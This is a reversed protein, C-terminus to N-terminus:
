YFLQGKMVTVARGGIFVRGEALRVTLEGGRASVQRATMRDQGLKAGWYPGLCCHASGTVPDEPVGVGPAFFRSVFDVEPSESRSTVIFGRAEIGALASLDPNLNRIQAESEFELLYDFRNKGTFLPTLGFIEHLNRPAPAQDAKEEPFDLEIMGDPSVAARLLGSLTQFSYAGGSAPFGENNLVHAAALTAHGCLEVEVAPTFWRLNYGDKEPLLFATESLNMERAAAQMWKEDAPKELICVGAPNGQYPKDTFADVQWITLSM